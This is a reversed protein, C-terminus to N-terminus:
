KISCRNYTEFISNIYHRDNRIAKRLESSSKNAMALAEACDSVAHVIVKHSTIQAMPEGDGLQMFFENQPTAVMDGYTTRRYVMHERLYVNIRGTVIRKVFEDTHGLRAFYVNRNKYGRVEAIKFRRDDIGITNRESMGNGNGARVRNGTVKTGDMLEVYSGNDSFQEASEAVDFYDAPLASVKCGATVALLLTGALAYLCFWRVNIM